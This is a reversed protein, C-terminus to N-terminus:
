TGGGHGGYIVGGGWLVPTLPCHMSAASSVAASTFATGGLEELSRRGGGGGGGGWGTPDRHWHDADMGRHMMMMAM